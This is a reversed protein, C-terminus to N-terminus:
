LLPNKNEHYPRRAVLNRKLVNAVLCIPETTQTLLLSVNHSPHVPQWPSPGSCTKRNQRPLRRASPWARPMSIAVTVHGRGPAMRGHRRQPSGSAAIGRRHRSLRSGRIGANSIFALCPYKPGPERAQLREALIVFRSAAVFGIRYGQGPPLVLRM